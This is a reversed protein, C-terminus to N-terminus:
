RTTEAVLTPREAHKVAYPRDSTRKEIWELAAILGKKAVPALQQVTQQRTAVPILMRAVRWKWGPLLTRGIVNMGTTFAASRLSAKAIDGLETNAFAAIRRTAPGQTQMTTQISNTLPSVLNTVAKKVRKVPNLDDRLDQLDQRFQGEIVELKAKLAAKRAYLPSKEKNNTM